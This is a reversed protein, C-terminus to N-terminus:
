SALQASDPLEVWFTSGRGPASQVGVKGGHAEVV